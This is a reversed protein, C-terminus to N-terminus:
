NEYNRWAEVTFVSFEPVISKLKLDALYKIM